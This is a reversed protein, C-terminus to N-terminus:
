DHEVGKQLWFGCGYGPAIREGTFRCVYRSWRTRQMELFYECYCCINNVAAPGAPYFSIVPDAKSNAGSQWRPSENKNM